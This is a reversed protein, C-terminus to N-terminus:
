TVTRLLFLIVKQIQLSLDWNKFSSKQISEQKLLKKAIRLM